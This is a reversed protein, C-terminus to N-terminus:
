CATGSPTRCWWRETCSTTPSPETGDPQAALGGSSALPSGVVRGAFSRRGRAPSWPSGPPAGTGSTPPCGTRTRGRVTRFLAAEAARRRKRKTEHLRRTPERNRNEERTKEGRAPPLRSDRPNAERAAPAGIMTTEM